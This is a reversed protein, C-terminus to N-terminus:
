GIRASVRPTRAIRIACTAAASTTATGARRNESNVRYCRAGCPCFVLGTFPAIGRGTRSTQGRGAKATRSQIAAFTEDRLIRLSEDQREMHEADAKRRPLRRGTARNLQMKRVNYRIRGTLITAGLPV